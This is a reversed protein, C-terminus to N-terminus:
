KGDLAPESDSLPDSEAVTSGNGPRIALHPRGAEDLMVLTYDFVDHAPRHHHRLRSDM